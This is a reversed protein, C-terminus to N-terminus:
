LFVMDNLVTSRAITDCINGTLLVLSFSVVNASIANRTRFGVYRHTEHFLLGKELTHVRWVTDAHKATQPRPELPGRDGPCVAACFAASTLPTLMALDQTGPVERTM